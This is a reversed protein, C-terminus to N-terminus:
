KGHRRRVAEEPKAMDVSEAEEPKAMDESEAEEPKAM